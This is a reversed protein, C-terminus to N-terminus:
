FNNFHVCLCVYLVPSRILRSENKSLLISIFRTLSEPLSTAYTHATKTAVNKSCCLEVEFVSGVDSAILFYMLHFSNRPIIEVGSQNIILKILKSMYKFIQLSNRVPRMLASDINARHPTLLSVPKNSIDVPHSQRQVAAM